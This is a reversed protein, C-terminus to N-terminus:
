GPVAPDAPTERYPERLVRKLVKGAANRPLTEVFEVATPCKYHAMRARAFEIVEEATPPVGSAAVVVALVTEGWRISPIGVVAVDAIGPHDALVNEVEAPYINEGGSIVMDKIRDHLFLYGQEDRYAADGTRLWGDDTLTEVTERPRRWYGPTNQGSRVWIEGVEGLASPAGTLPDFVAVEHWPLTRGISRLLGARPGGPDHDEPALATVSGATETMGYVGLFSCPLERMARLLLAETMPAGGYAVMRLSSLDPGRPADLLMTVVAPVMFAHTVRHREVAAVMAGPDVDAMLVTHGGQGLATLSYGIGGIHFLPSAVLNVTSADMRYSERGMRPTFALNAHTLLAGKPLGTTGSSYLQLVARDEPRAGEDDPGDAGIGDLEPPTTPLGAFWPEYETELDLVRVDATTPLLARQASGSLVVSPEADALIAAIEPPALRWNLAVLVAGVRAAGFLLEFFEPRNRALVAVRDGPRIGDRLLAHAVQSAHDDLAGFSLTHEGRSLAPRERGLSTLRELM